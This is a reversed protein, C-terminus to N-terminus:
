SLGHNKKYSSPSEGVYKKFKSHFYDVNSFGVQEAVEYVKLGQLLLKKGNEIRIKDLYTNFYEGTYEKFLKGLYFGEKPFLIKSLLEQKLQNM